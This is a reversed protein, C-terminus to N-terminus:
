ETHIQLVDLIVISEILNMQLKNVTINNYVIDDQM